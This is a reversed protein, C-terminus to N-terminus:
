GVENLAVEGTGEVVEGIEWARHGLAALTARVPGVDPPTVIVVFGIGMNFVRYLEAETTEAAAAVADFVAPRPWRGPDIHAATGAPLVRGVNGPLGGGTVHAMGHPRIRTLMEVVAPAYVVSPSTLEEAVTGEWAAPQDDLDLGERLAVRVLSFGNCRLNPSEIGVLRDGPRIESGDIVADREVIGLATGALDFQDPPMVGPHEATEGGVLAIGSAECAAAVSTVLQVVLDEDLKGVALYDTMAIPEAGAAVLDDACMAVLDFGLGDLRGSRRAVEGKTGVGDTSLMLVPDAYGSPVAMGAAFGGFGGVVRGKWTSSVAPGIRSVSREAAELDVGAERYTPM